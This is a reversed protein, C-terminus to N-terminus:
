INPSQSVVALSVQLKDGVFVEKCKFLRLREGRPVWFTHQPRCGINLIKMGARGGGGGGAGGGM